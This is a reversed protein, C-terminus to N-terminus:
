ASAATQGPVASRAARRGSFVTDGISLGSFTTKSSMGVTCRGCAFLSPIPSGDESIVAGTEEDVKLGGYPMGSTCNWKNRFAMNIAFWGPKDLIARNEPRKHFADEGKAVGVNYAAITHALQNGAPMGCKRALDDLTWGHRNGGFMMNLWFPIGLWSFMQGPPAIQRIGRWFARSDLILWAAYNKQQSTALGIHANYADENIYREGDSNVLVGQVFALPPNLPRAITVADMNGLTAGVSLAMELGSGDDGMSGARLMEKHCAAFEPRHRGLLELNYTFNGSAIIVARQARILARAQPISAELARCEAIAQEARVGGFPRYPDVRKYLADHKPWHEEGIVQCEVGIVRGQADLVLRRVPRHQLLRVGARAAAERLGAWYYKGSMGKGVARHGRPAVKAVEPRFKEMGSYYLFHGDPPYSTSPVYPNGGFPIGHSELWDINASSTDCYRKLTEPRVTVGEYSLYNFMEEASDDIGAERQHRTGGAYIVGGSYATTGGGSFRDLALVSAGEDRAQLAAVAGAGGFGILVVDAADQWDAGEPDDLILPAESPTTFDRYFDGTM